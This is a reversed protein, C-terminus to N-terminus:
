KKIPKGLMHKIKYQCIYKEIYEMESYYCESLYKKIITFAKKKEEVLLQANEKRLSEHMSKVVSQLTSISSLSDLDIAYKAGNEILRQRNDTIIAVGDKVTATLATYKQIYTEMMEKKAMQDAYEEFPLQYIATKLKDSLWTPNSLAFLICQAVANSVHRKVKSFNVHDETIVKKGIM